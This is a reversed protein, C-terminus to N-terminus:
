LQAMKDSNRARKQLVARMGKNELILGSMAFSFQTVYRSKQFKKLLIQHM